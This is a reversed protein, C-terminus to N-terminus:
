NDSKGTESRNEMTLDLDSPIELDGGLLEGMEVPKIQSRRIVRSSSEGSQLFRSSSQPAFSVYWLKIVMGLVGFFLFALTLIPATNFKYDLAVGVLAFIIPTLVMELVKVFGDGVQSSGSVSANPDDLLSKPKTGRVMFGIVARTRSM